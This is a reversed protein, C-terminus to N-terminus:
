DILLLFFFNRSIIKLFFRALVYKIQLMGKLKQGKLSLISLHVGWFDFTLSYWKKYVWLPHCFDECHSVSNLVFVTVVGIKAFFILYELCWHTSHFARLDSVTPKGFLLAYIELYFLNLPKFNTLKLIIEEHWDQTGWIKMSSAFDKSNTLIM